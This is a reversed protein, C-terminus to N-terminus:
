NLKCTNLTFLISFRIAALRVFCRFCINKYIYKIYIKTPYSDTKRRAAQAPTIFLLSWRSATARRRICCSLMVQLLSDCHEMSECVACGTHAKTGDRTRYLLMNLDGQSAVTAAPRIQDLQAVSLQRTNFRSVRTAISVFNPVFHAIVRCIRSIESIRADLM